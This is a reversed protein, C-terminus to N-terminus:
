IPFFFLSELYGKSINFPFVWLQKSRKYGNTFLGNVAFLENNNKIEYHSWLKQEVVSDFFSYKRLTSSRM